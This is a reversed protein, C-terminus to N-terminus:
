KTRKRKLISRFLTNRLQPWLKELAQEEAAGPLEHPAAWRERVFLDTVRRLPTAARPFHRSLVRNYEYPTQWGRPPLGAWSALRCVRWFMTSAVSAATNLWREKYWNFLAFAFILISTALILLSLGLFLEQSVQAGPSNIGTGSGTSGPTQKHQPGTKQHGPAPTPHPSTPPRPQGPPPNPRTSPAGNLSFGPTPDFNIWGFTPLYVQVWSHADFGNVVWVKHQSDYRGQSFGNVIRAPIGLLRAMITMASAYYTCYGKHTQLLWAVADVNGPVPQNEVSYTFQTPDSLHAQLGRMADYVNTTGRTWQLATTRVSSPLDTPTQLYYQKVIPVNSDNSWLNQSDQPFLVTSLDQATATLIDSIVRYREGQTLPGRQTWTATIGNGYLATPVNFSAPQAPAFIYNKTGGPPQTVNVTTTVQNFKSMTELPLQTNALFQQPQNPALSTWTHGDFRDYTFGELYQSQPAANSTYSLVEGTPLIVSGTISLQDGFFNTASPTQFLSGQGGLPFQGHTLSNWANDLGNWFNVGSGPQALGPLVWAIVLILLMLLSSVQVFRRNIDQLWARDTHLGENIWRNVQNVLQIRAILLILAGLMIVLLYSLDRNAYNLNVLMIACYVLAVLWPLHARYILWAGFYGLFFSLFTLYFLFVMGSNAAASTTLGGGIVARLNGLLVLWSIHFALVSTLYISLWYGALCAGLHLIAQPFRQIKAVCLGVLLGAAASWPLIFSNDVWDSSIISFVVSYLAIALLLMALWGESPALSFSRQRERYAAPHPIQHQPRPSRFESRPVAAPSRTGLNTTGQGSPHSGAVSSRM